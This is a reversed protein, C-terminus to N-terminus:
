TDVFPGTYILEQQDTKNSLVHFVRVSLISINVLASSETYIKQISHLKEKGHTSVSMFTARVITCINSVGLRNASADEPAFFFMKLCFAGSASAAALPQQQNLERM